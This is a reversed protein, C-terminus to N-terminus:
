KTSDAEFFSALLHEAAPLLDQQLTAGNVVEHDISRVLGPGFGCYVPLSHLIRRGLLRFFVNKHM